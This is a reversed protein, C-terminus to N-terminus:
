FCQFERGRRECSCRRARLTIGKSPQRESPHGRSALLEACRKGSVDRTSVDRTSVDRASVHSAFVQLDVDQWDFIQSDFIAVRRLSPSSCNIGNRAAAGSWTAGVRPTIANKERQQGGEFPVAHHRAARQVARYGTQHATQHVRQHVTGHVLGFCDCAATGLGDVRLPAIPTQASGSAPGRCTVAVQAGAIVGWAPIAADKLSRRVQRVKRSAAGACRSWLAVM